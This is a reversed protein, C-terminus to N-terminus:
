PRSLLDVSCPFTSELLYSSAILILSAPTATSDQRHVRPDIFISGNRDPFNLYIYVNVVGRENIYSLYGPTLAM